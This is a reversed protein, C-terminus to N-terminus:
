GSILTMANAETIRQSVEESLEMKKLLAMMQGDFCDRGFLLRQHYKEILRCVIDPSTKL